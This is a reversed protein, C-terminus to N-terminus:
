SRAADWMLRPDFARAAFMTLVVVALFAPAGAAARVAVISQFQMLPLFVAITYVDVNSWRGIEAIGRYL